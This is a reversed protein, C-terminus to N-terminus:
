NIQNCNNLKSGFITLELEDYIATDKTILPAVCDRFFADKTNGCGTLQLIKKIKLYIEGSASKIDDRPNGRQVSVQLSDDIARLCEDCKEPKGQAICLKKVIEDSLLYSEIHRRSLVKIGEKELEKIENPSRDDRDVVKIINSGHLVEKVIRMGTNDPNEIESCSGVSVFEVDPHKSRFIIGYIQADFNKYKRGRATGECFVVTKPAILNSFDGLSVELFRNWLATDIEAPVLVCKGDFDARSFDLFCVSGPFSVEIEKAAKLMGISHTSLWLQSENPIIKVLEHLLSEQLSAHMHTEPEDICYLSDSYYDKKVILDLILDFAAKEGASLNKYHFKEVDGKSFYFSGGEGPEGISVLLLDGFVRELSKNIQGVLSERYEKITRSNNRQDFVGHLANFLLRSYNESVASDSTMLTNFRSFECPSTYMKVNKVTFDPDIRYATRFYFSNRVQDQRGLTKDHTQVTVIKDFWIDKNEVDEEHKIYFEREGVAGWGKLKFWHNIGEFVSTKGSGNPGILIVIRASKPIDTILLDRFRKFNRMHISKIKM